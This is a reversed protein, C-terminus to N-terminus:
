KNTGSNQWLQLSQNVIEQFDKQNEWAIWCPRCQNRFWTMQRKAYRQTGHITQAVAEDRSIIGRLYAYGEKYGLAQMVTHAPRCGLRMLEITEEILGNSYMWGTRQEILSHLDERERQIGLFFTRAFWPKKKQQARFHSVTEGTQYIIELARLVRRSDNPHIAAATPPDRQQLEHYLQGGGESQLRAHLTARIESDPDPVEFFGELLARYYLGTGGCLVLPRQKEWACKLIPEAYHAYKSANFHELPSALDLGYHFVLAREERTPKATGIDLRRYVQMADVCLIDAGLKQAVSLSLATKGSATPGVIAFFLPAAQPTRQIFVPRSTNQRKHPLKWLGSHWRCEWVYSVRGAGRQRM